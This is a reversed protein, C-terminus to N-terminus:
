VSHGVDRIGGREKHQCNQDLIIVFGYEPVFNTKSPKKNTKYPM